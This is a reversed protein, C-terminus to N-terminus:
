LFLPLGPFPYISITDSGLCHLGCTRLRTRRLGCGESAADMATDDYVPPLWRLTRYETTPYLAKHTDRTPSFPTTLAVPEVGDCRVFRLVVAQQYDVPTWAAFVAQLPLWCVDGAHPPPPHPPPLRDM